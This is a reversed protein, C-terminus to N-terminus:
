RCRAVDAARQARCRRHRRRPEDRTRGRARFREAGCRDDGCLRRRHPEPPQVFTSIYRVEEEVSIGQNPIPVGNGVLYLCHKNQKKASVIDDPKIARTLVDPLHDTIFTCRALRELLRPISNGEEGANQFVCTVGAAEFAEAYEKREEPDFAARTAMSNGAAFELETDSAGADDMAALAEGDPAVWPSFGYSDIVVSARHISLGHDLDKQSPKLISLAVDRDNQIRSNMSSQM